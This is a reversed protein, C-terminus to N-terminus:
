DQTMVYKVGKTVGQKKLLGKKVLDQVERLVTDESVMPFLTDYASNEIYGNARIYEIIKLQRESLM